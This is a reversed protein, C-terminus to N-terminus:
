YRILLERELVKKNATIGNKDDCSANYGRSRIVTCIVNQSCNCTKGVGCAIGTMSVDDTPDHFKWVSISTCVERSKPDTLETGGWSFELKREDGWAQGGSNPVSGDYGNFCTVTSDTTGEEFAGRGSGEAERVESSLDWYKACELGANAAQFALESSLGISSIKFQKLSVGLLSLGVSLVIGAILISLLLTFGRNETKKNFSNM